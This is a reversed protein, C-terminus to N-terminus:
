IAALRPGPATKMKRKGARMGVSSCNGAEPSVDHFGSTYHVFKLASIVVFFCVLSCSGGFYSCDLNFLTFSIPHPVQRRRERASNGGANILVLDEPRMRTLEMQMSTKMNPGLYHFCLLPHNRHPLFSPIM